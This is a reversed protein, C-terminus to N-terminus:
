PGVPADQGISKLCSYYRIRIPKLAATAEAIAALDGSQYAANLAANATNYEMEEAGCFAFVGASSILALVSTFTVIAKKM